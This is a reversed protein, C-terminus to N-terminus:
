KIFILRRSTPENQEVTITMQLGAPRRAALYRVTARGIGSPPRRPSRTGIIIMPTMPAEDRKLLILELRACELWAGAVIVIAIVALEAWVICHQNCM